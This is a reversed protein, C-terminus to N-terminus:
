SVHYHSRVDDRQCYWISAIRLRRVTVCGVFRKKKVQSTERRTEGGKWPRPSNQVLIKSCLKLTLGRCCIFAMQRQRLIGLSSLNIRRNPNRSSMHLVALLIYSNRQFDCEPARQESSCDWAERITNKGACNACCSGLLLHCPSWYWLSHFPVTRRM